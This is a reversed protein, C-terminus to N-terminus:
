HMPRPRRPNEVAEDGAELPLALAEVREARHATLWGAIQQMVPMSNGTRIFYEARSVTQYGADIALGLRLAEDDSLTIQVGEERSRLEM